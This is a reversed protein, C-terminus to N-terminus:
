SCSKEDAGPFGIPGARRGGQDPHRQGHEPVMIVAVDGRLVALCILPNSTNRDKERERNTTSNDTKDTSRSEEERDRVMEFWCCRWIGGRRM